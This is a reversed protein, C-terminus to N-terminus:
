FKRKTTEVKECSGRAQQDSPGRMTFRTYILSGVRRDLSFSLQVENTGDDDAIISISYKEATSNDILEKTKPQKLNSVLIPFLSSDAVFMFKKGSEIVDFLVTEQKREPELIMGYKKYLDLKCFITYKKEQASVISSIFILVVFILTKMKLMQNQNKITM